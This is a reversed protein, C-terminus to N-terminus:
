RVTTGRDVPLGAARWAQFGGAVDTADLGFRRATAAALSSQFGEDCILIVSVDRRAIERDRHECEPDMRWELVNRPHRRANPIEGDRARQVESRIDVLVAGSRQAAMAQAPTLRELRERAAALLEDVTLRGEDPARAVTPMIAAGFSRAAPLAGPRTVNVNLV